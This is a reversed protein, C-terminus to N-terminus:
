DIKRSRGWVEMEEGDIRMTITDADTRRLSKLMMEKVMDTDNPDVMSFRFLHCNLGERAKEPVKLYDLMSEYIDTNVTFALAHNKDNLAANDALAAFYALVESNQRGLMHFPVSEGMAVPVDNYTRIHMMTLYQFPVEGPRLKRGPGLIEQTHEAMVASHDGIRHYVLVIDTNGTRHAQDLVYVEGKKMLPQETETRMAYFLQEIDYTEMVTSIPRDLRFTNNERMKFFNYARLRYPDEGTNFYIRMTVGRGVQNDNGDGDVERLSIEVFSRWMKSANNQKVRASVDAIRYRAGDRLETVYSLGLGDLFSERRKASDMRAPSLVNYIGRDLQHDAGELQISCAGGAVAMQEGKVILKKGVLEHVMDAAYEDADRLLPISNGASDEVIFHIRVRSMDTMALTSSHRADGVKFSIRSTSPLYEVMTTVIGYIGDPLDDLRYNRQKSQFEKHEMLYRQLGAIGGLDLPPGVEPKDRNGGSDDHVMPDKKSSTAMEDKYGSPSSIINLCLTCNSLRRIAKQATKVEM